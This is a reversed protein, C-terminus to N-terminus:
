EKTLFAWSPGTEVDIKFELPVEIGFRKTLLKPLEKCINYLVKSCHAVAEDDKCDFMVSDHVSNIFLIDTFLRHRLERMVASRYVAMVDGTSFGQCPYNKMETPSFSAEKQWEGMPDYECFSYRRGSPSDYHGVGRPYGMKTHGDVKRTSRVSAAVFEQWEKVKPYRGYYQEIFKQALKKPIGNKEAMSHAGAGYQLQFSLQKAIQRQQKTVKSEPVNFLGAARVIHMDMGSKIDEILQPDLSLIALGVVELQSFDANVIKGNTFRTTFCEKVRSV